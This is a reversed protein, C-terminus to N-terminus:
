KRRPQILIEESITNYYSADKAKANTFFFLNLLEM